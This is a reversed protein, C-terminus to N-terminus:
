ILRSRVIIVDEPRRKPVHHVQDSTRWYAPNGDRPLDELVIREGPRGLAVILQIELDSPIGLTQQIAPRDISGLMCAAYGAATAALQLTQAAVGVDTAPSKGTAALIVVYGTPREGEAPGAWDKLAAAWRLSRFIRAREDADTVLRYRLPQQNGGSPVFRVVDVLRRM